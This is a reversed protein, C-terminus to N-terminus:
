ILYIDLLDNVHQTNSYDIVMPNGFEFKKEVVNGIRVVKYGKDTIYNSAPIFTDIDANRFSM